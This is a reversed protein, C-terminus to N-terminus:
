VPLAGGQDENGRALSAAARLVARSSEIGFSSPAREGRLAARFARVAARHGKDQGKLSEARGDLVLERYDVIVASRGRGLVELREKETSRHGRAAYSITSLSGDAHRMAIVFDEALLLEGGTSGFAQVDVVEGAIAACTDVFHCMEGLLRGGQRRDGYWHGDPVPGAHVRYTLTLPGSGGAFHEVVREVAPSFRRNFGVFLVGGGKAEAKEIEDLQEFTLALPKECWVSKGAALARAAIDAHADHATAVVVVDVEPDDIVAPAGSVAREFGAREGLNRATTGSASTVSVFRTFGAARFAPLLVGSAFAGAGVLGVGDTGPAASAALRIPREPPTEAGYELVVALYPETRREILEYARPADALDFRHSVLDDVPLRGEAILALVAQQNRGETWRVASLPYDVGWEEYSREYRGPGYSRAVRVTLEKEYLARRSLEMGVDGVVVITAGDRCYRPVREMIASSRDSAAVIVVDAGRGGCREIVADVTAEGADAVADVGHERARALPLEAVDVGVVRCGSAVALRAVLQGILGLGVVVVDSGIAAGSLRLGHLAISGVTAFAAQAPTVGPPVPACLLGAVAQFDAHGVGGTAVLQGIQVGSVADGVGVVTGAASYGLPMDGAMRSRVADVTQRLGDHRAKDLVQRVLDPRARAKAVLGSQALSTVARETGSSIVSAQTRVLVETPGIVPRPVDVLRVEGGSLPQVIQRM